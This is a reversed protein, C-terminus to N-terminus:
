SYGGSISMADRNVGVTAKGWEAQAALRHSKHQSTVGELTACANYNHIVAFM